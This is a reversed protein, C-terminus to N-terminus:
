KQAPIANTLQLYSHTLTTFMWVTVIVSILLATIHHILSYQYITLATYTAFLSYTLYVILVMFFVQWWDGKVINWSRELGPIVEKDEIIVAYNSYILRVTIYIGPLILAIFGAIMAIITLLLAGLITPLKKATYKMNETLHIPKKRQIDAITKIVLSAIYINITISILIIIIQNMQMIQLVYLITQGIITYTLLIIPILPHTYITKVGEKLAKTNNLEGKPSETEQKKTTKKEEKEINRPLNILAILIIFATIIITGWMIEPPIEYM